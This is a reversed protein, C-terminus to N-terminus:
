RGLIIDGHFHGTTLEMHFIFFQRTNLNDNMAMVESLRKRKAVNHLGMTCAKLFCQLEYGIFVETLSQSHRFM